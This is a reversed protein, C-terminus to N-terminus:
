LIHLSGFCLARSLPDSTCFVTYMICIDTLFVTTICLLLFLLCKTLLLVPDNSTLIECLFMYLNMFVFNFSGPTFAVM